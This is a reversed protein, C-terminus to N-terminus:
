VLVFRNRLWLAPLGFCNDDEEDKHMPIIPIAPVVESNDSEDVIDVEPITFHLFPRLAWWLEREQEEHRRERAQDELFKKTQEFPFPTVSM